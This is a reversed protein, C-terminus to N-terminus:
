KEPKNPKPETEPVSRRELATDDFIFGDRTLSEEGGEEDKFAATWMRLRRGQEHTLLPRVTAEPLRAIQFLLLHLDPARGYRKPPRTERVILAVLEEAQAGSLDLSTQISNAGRLLAWEYRQRNQKALAQEYRQAQERDLTKRLMKSFLSGEGFSDESVDNVVPAGGIALKIVVHGQINPRQAARATADRADMLRKIDGHGAVRAKKIQAESLRCSSKLDDLQRSLMADLRAKLQDRQLLRQEAQNQMVAFLRAENAAVRTAVFPDVAANDEPEHDDQARAVRGTAGAALAVAVLFLRGPLPHILTM